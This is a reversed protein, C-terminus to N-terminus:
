RRMYTDQGEYMQAQQQQQQQQGQGPHGQPPGGQHPPPPAHQMYLEPPPQPLGMNPPPQNNNVHQLHPPPPPLHQQHPSLMHMDEGPPPPPGGYHAREAAYPDQMSRPAAAQYHGPPAPLHRPQHPSSSPSHHPHPYPDLPHPPRNPNPLCRQILRQGESPSGDPNAGVLPQFKTTTFTYVIGTESVVLLLVETGTLTALEYAKKMIGAKRKSFTIHRKEKKQIYEIEIKRRGKDPDAGDGAADGGGGEAGSGVSAQRVGGDASAGGAAGASANAGGSRGRASTRQKKKPSAGEDFDDEDDSGAANPDFAVIAPAAGRQPRTSSRTAPASSAAASCSIGPSDINLAPLLPQASSSAGPPPAPQQQQQLQQEPLTLGPSVPSPNAHPQQQQQPPQHVPGTRGPVASLCQQDPAHPHVEWFSSFCPSSPSWSPTPHSLPLHSLAVSHERGSTWQGAGDNVGAKRNHQSARPRGRRSLNPCRSDREPHSPPAPRPPSAPAALSTPRAQSHSGSSPPRSTPLALNGLCVPTRRPHALAGRRNSCLNAAAASRRPRREQRTPRRSQPLDVQPRPAPDRHALAATRCSCHRLLPRRPSHRLHWTPPPARHLVDTLEGQDGEGRFQRM